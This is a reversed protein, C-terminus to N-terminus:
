KSGTLEAGGKKTTLESEVYETLKQLSPVGDIRKSNVFVVPSGRIGRKFGDSVDADARASYRRQDLMEAFKHEDLGLSGAYAILDQERLMDQHDLIFRAMEWFRGLRAADM